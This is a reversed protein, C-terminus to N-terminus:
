SDDGASTLVGQASVEFQFAAAQISTKCGDPVEVQGHEERPEVERLSVESLSGAVRGSGPTVDYESLTFTGKSAAHYSIDQDGHHDASIYVCATCTYIDAQDGSLSVEAPALGAAFPAADAYLEIFLVDPQPDDNLAFRLKLALGDEDAMVATGKLTGLDPYSGALASCSGGASDDPAPQGPPSDDGDCALVLLAAAIPGATAWARAPASASGM